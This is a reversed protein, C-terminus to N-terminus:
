DDSVGIQVALIIFIGDNKLGTLVKRLAMQVYVM